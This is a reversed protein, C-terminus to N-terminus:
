CRRAPETAYGQGAIDPHFVYGIEGAAHNCFPFFLTVDGVLRGSAALEAGLTLAQGEATIERRGLDGALRAGVGARGDACVCSLPL